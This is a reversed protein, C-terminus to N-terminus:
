SVAADLDVAVPDVVAVGEVEDAGDVAALHRGRECSAPGVDVGCEAPQQRKQSRQRSLARGRAARPTRAVGVVHRQVHMLERPM